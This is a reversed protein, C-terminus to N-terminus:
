LLWLWKYIWRKFGRLGFRYHGIDPVTLVTKRHPLLLVLYNIDGTIHYVDGRIQRLRWGDLFVRWRSGTEYEIVEIYKGLEGAIAHFLEEISFGDERKKRFILVVRMM